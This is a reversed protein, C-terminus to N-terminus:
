RRSSDNRDNGGSALRSSTMIPHLKLAKEPMKAPVTTYHTSLAFFVCKPLIRLRAVQFSHRTM